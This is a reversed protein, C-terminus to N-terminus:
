ASCSATKVPDAGGAMVIPITSTATKAALQSAVAGSAVIVTAQLRVLDSALQRMVPQGKGWRFEIAVNQGEIYGADRLGSQFNAVIRETAEPSSTDLFGIMPVGAQQARAALPWVAPTAAAGVGVIFERRRM